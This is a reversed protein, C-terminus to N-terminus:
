RLQMLLPDMNGLLTVPGAHFMGSADHLKQHLKRGDGEVQRRELSGGNKRCGYWGIYRWLGLRM